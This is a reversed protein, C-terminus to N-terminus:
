TTTKKVPKIPFRSSCFSKAPPFNELAHVLEAYEPKTCVNSANADLVCFQVALCAIVVKAFGM